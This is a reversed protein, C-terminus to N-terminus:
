WVKSIEVIAKIKVFRRSIGVLHPLCTSYHLVGDGESDRRRSKNLHDHAPSM